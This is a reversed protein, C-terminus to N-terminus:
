TFWGPGSLSGRLTFSILVKLLAEPLQLECSHAFLGFTGVHSLAPIAFGSSCCDHKQTCSRGEGVNGEGVHISWKGYATQSMIRTTGSHGHLAIHGNLAAHSSPEYALNPDVVPQQRQATVGPSGKTYLGRDHLMTAFVEREGHSSKNSDKLHCM